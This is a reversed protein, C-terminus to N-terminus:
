DAAHDIVRGGSIAQRGCEESAEEPLFATQAVLGYAGGPGFANRLEHRSGCCLVAKDIRAVGGWGDGRRCSQQGVELDLEAIKTEGRGGVVGAGASHYFPQVALRVQRGLRM